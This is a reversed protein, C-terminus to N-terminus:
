IKSGYDIPPTSNGGGAKICDQVLITDLDFYLNVTGSRIGNIRSGFAPVGSKDPKGGTTGGQFTLWGWKDWTVQQGLLQLNKSNVSGLYGNFILSNILNIKPTDTIYQNASAPILMRNSDKYKVVLNGFCDMYVPLNEAQKWM